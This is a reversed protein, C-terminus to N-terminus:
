EPLGAKRLANIYRELDSKNKYPLKSIFGSLKVSPDIKLVNVVSQKAEDNEGLFSYTGALRIHAGRHNPEQDLTKKILPSKIISPFAAM